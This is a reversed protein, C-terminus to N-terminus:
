EFVLDDEETFAILKKVDQKRIPTHDIEIIDTDGREFTFLEKRSVPGYIIMDREARGNWYIVKCLIENSGM